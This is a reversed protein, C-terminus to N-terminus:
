EAPICRARASWLRVARGWSSNEQGATNERARDVLQTREQECEDASGYTAYREWTEVPADADATWRCGDERFHQTLPPRILVWGVLVVVAHVLRRVRPSPVPRSYTRARRTEFRSAGSDGIRRARAVQAM